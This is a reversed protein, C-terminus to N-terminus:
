VTRSGLVSVSGGKQLLRGVAAVVESNQLLKGQLCFPPTLWGAFTVGCSGLPKKRWLARDRREKPSEGCPSQLFTRADNRVRPPEAALHAPCHQHRSPATQGPIALSVAAMSPKLPGPLCWWQVADRIRLVSRLFLLPRQPGAPLSRKGKAPPAREWM